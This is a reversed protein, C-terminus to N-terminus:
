LGYVYDVVKNIETDTLIGNKGFPPMARTPTAARPMGSRDM